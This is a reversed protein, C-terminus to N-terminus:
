RLLTPDDPIFRIVGDAVVRGQVVRDGTKLQARMGGITADVTVGTTVIGIVRGNIDDGHRKARVEQREVLMQAPIPGLLTLATTVRVDLGAM